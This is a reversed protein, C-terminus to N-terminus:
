GILYKIAQKCDEARSVVFVVLQFNLAVPVVSWLAIAVTIWSYVMNFM